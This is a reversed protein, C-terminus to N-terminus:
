EDDDDADAEAIQSRYEQVVQPVFHPDEDCVCVRVGDSAHHAALSQGVASLGVVGLECLEESM